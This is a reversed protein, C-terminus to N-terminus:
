GHHQEKRERDEQHRKDDEESHPPIYNDIDAQSLCVFTTGVAWKNGDRVFSDPTNWGCLKGQSDVTMVLITDAPPTPKKAWINRESNRTAINWRVGDAWQGANKFALKGDLTADSDVGKPPFGTEHLAYISHYNAFFASCRIMRLRDEHFKGGHPHMDIRMYTTQLEKDNADAGYLMYVGDGFLIFAPPANGVAFALDIVTVNNKNIERMVTGTEKM